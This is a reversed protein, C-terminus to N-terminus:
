DRTSRFPYDLEIFLMLIWGYAMVCYKNLSHGGRAPLGLTVFLFLMNECRCGARTAQDGGFKARHYFVDPCNQFIGIM